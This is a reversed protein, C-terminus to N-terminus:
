DFIMRPRVSCPTATKRSINDAADSMYTMYRDAFANTLANLEGISVKATESSLNSAAGLRDASAQAQRMATKQMNELITCGQMSGIAFALLALSLSPRLAADRLRSLLGVDFRFIAM